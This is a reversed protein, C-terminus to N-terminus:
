LKAQHIQDSNIQEVYRLALDYDQAGEFGLRFGGLERLLETRYVGLHTILNHSYFLDVNWDCKFYPGFRDGTGDIKDEDSYILQVDKNKNIADVAWFLAHETLTDDHDLLAVWEGSALELASNSAASIHGNQDRFVVNIRPDEAAYRELLPRIASDTSADDAICLEWNPYIQRRVSEVRYLISELHGAELSLLRLQIDSLDQDVHRLGKVSLTTIELGNRDEYAVSVKNLQAIPATPSIM